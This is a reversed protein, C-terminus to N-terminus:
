KSDATMTQNVLTDTAQVFFLKANLDPHVNTISYFNGRPVEFSGGKRLTFVNDSINVEVRGSIVYFIYSNQKSPKLPKSGQVKIDIIGGACYESNYDYLTALSYTANKIDKFEATDPAWALVRTSNENMDPYEFVLGEVKGEADGEQGSEDSSEEIRRKQSPRTAKQIRKRKKRQSKEPSPAYVIEKIHPKDEELNYIIRENRWYALPAVKVRTSRRIGPFDSTHRATTMDAGESDEESDAFTNNVYTTDNVLTDDYDTKPEDLDLSDDHVLSPEPSLSSSFSRRSSRHTAKPRKRYSPSHSSKRRPSSDYHDEEDSDQYDRSEEEESFEQVTYSSNSNSVDKSGEVKSLSPEEQDMFLSSEDNLSKSQENEGPNDGYSHDYDDAGFEDGGFNDGFNDGLGSGDFNYDHEPIRVSPAPIDRTPDYDSPLSDDDIDQNFPPHSLPHHVVSDNSESQFESDRLDEQRGSLDQKSDSEEEEEEESQVNAIESFRSVFSPVGRSKKKSAVGLRPRAPTDSFNMFRRTAEVAVASEELQEVTTKSKTDVDSGSSGISQNDDLSQLMNGTTGRKHADAFDIKQAVSDRSVTTHRRSEVSALEMSQSGSSTEPQEAGESTDEVVIQFRPSRANSDGAVQGDDAVEENSRQTTDEFYKSIDEM